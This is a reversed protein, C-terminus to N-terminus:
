EEDDSSAILRYLSRKTKHHAAILESMREPLKVGEDFNFRALADAMSNFGDVSVADHQNETGRPIILTSFGWSVVKTKGAKMQENIFPGWIEPEMSFYGRKDAKSFNVRIIRPKAVEYYAQIRYFLLDHTTSIKNIRIDEEKVGPFMEELNANGRTRNAFQEPTFTNVIVFNHDKHVDFGGIRQYVAWGTKKDESVMKKAVKSWYTRERHIFDEVNELDVHRRNVVMINQSFSQATLVLALCSIGLLKKSTKNM